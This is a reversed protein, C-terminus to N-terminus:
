DIFKDQMSEADDAMNEVIKSATERYKEKKEPDTGHILGGAM